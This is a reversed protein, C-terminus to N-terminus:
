NANYRDMEPHDDPDITKTDEAHGCLKCDMSYQQYKDDVIEFEWLHECIVHQCEQCTDVIMNLLWIQLKKRTYTVIEKNGDDEETAKRNINKIFAKSGCGGCSGFILLHECTVIVNQFKVFIRWQESLNNGAFRDFFLFRYCWVRDPTDEIFCEKCM